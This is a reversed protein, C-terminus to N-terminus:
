IKSSSSLGLALPIKAVRARARLVLLPIVSASECSLVTVSSSASSLIGGAGVGRVALLFADDLSRDSSISISGSSGRALVLLGVM